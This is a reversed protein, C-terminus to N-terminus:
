AENHESEQQIIKHIEDIIGKPKKMHLRNREEKLVKAVVNIVEQPLSNLYEELNKEEAM